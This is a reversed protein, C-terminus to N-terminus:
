EDGTGGIGNNDRDEYAVNWDSIHPMAPQLEIQAVRTGSELKIYYDTVSFGVFHIEGKYDSDIISTPSFIGRKVLLSSRPYMVIKYGKPIDFGIRLPICFRAHPEITITEPLCVDACAAGETKFVPVAGKVIKVAPDKTDDYFQLVPCRLVKEGNIWTEESM